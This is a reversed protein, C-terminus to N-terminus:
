PSERELITRIVAALKPLDNTILTIHEAVLTHVHVKQAVRWFDRTPDRRPGANAKTAYVLDLAGGYRGPIYVLGAREQVDMVRDGVTNLAYSGSLRATIVPTPTPARPARAQGVYTQLRNWRRLINNRIWALQQSMELNRVQRLRTYYRRLRKMLAARRVARDNGDKGPVFALLPKV